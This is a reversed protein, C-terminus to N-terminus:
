DFLEEELEEVKLIIITNRDFEIYEMDRLNMLERSLSPRPIGLMSAIQEKNIKLKITDSKQVKRQEM